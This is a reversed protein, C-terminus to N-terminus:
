SEMSPRNLLPLNLESAANSGSRVSIHIFTARTTSASTEATRCVGWLEYLMARGATTTWSGGANSSAYWAGASAPAGGSRYTVRCTPPNARPRVVLGIQEDGDIYRASSMPISFWGAGGSLDGETVSSSALINTTPARNRCSRVEVATVGTNGGDKELYLQLRTTRFDVAGAPLTVPTSQAVWTSNDISMQSSNTTSNYIALLTESGDTYTTQGTVTETQTTLSFSRVDSLVVESASGNLTRVLPAGAVGSWSYSITDDSGDGNRDAVTFTLTNSVAATVVKAYSLDLAARDLAASQAALDSERNSSPIAKSAILVASQLGVLLIAALSASVVLEVLTFARRASPAPKMLRM